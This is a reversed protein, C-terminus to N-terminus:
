YYIQYVEYDMTTFKKSGVLCDIKGKYDFSEQITHSSNNRCNSSLYLDPGKGFTPGYKENCVIAYKSQDKKILSTYLAIFWACLFAKEDSIYNQESNWKGVSFAGFRKGLASKIVTLTNSKGDCKYHFSKSGDGDRSARYILEMRIIPKNLSKEIGQNIFSIEDKSTFIKSNIFNFIKISTEDLIELFNINNNNINFYKYLYDVKKKLIDIEKVKEILNIIDNDNSISDKKLLILIIENPKKNKILSPIEIKVKLTNEEFYITTIKELGINKLFDYIEDNSEFQKFFKNLNQFNTKTFIGQFIPPNSEELSRSKIEISHKKNFFELSYTIKGSLQAYFSFYENLSAAERTCMNTLDKKENMINILKILNM